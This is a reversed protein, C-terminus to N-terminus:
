KLMQLRQPYHAEINYYLLSLELVFYILHNVRVMACEYFIIRALM